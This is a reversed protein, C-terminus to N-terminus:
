PKHLDSWLAAITPKTPRVGRRRQEAALQRPTMGAWVGSIDAMPYTLVDDLCDGAVPCGKCIQRAATIYTIDKHYRPFMEETKGKCAAYSRWTDDETRRSTQIADIPPSEFHHKELRRLPNTVAVQDM